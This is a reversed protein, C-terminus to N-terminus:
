VKTINFAKPSIWSFAISFNVDAQNDLLQIDQENKVPIHAENFSIYAQSGDEPIVLRGSAQFLDMPSFEPLKFYPQIGQPDASTGLFYSCNNIIEEPYDHSDCLGICTQLSESFFEKRTSSPSNVFDIFLIICRYFNAIVAHNNTCKTTNLCWSTLLNLISQTDTEKTCILTFWSEMDFDRFAKTEENPQVNQKIYAIAHDIYKPPDCWLALHNKQYQDVLNWICMRRAEYSYRNDSACLEALSVFHAQSEGLLPYLSTKITDVHELSARILSWDRKMRYRRLLSPDHRFSSFLELKKFLEICISRSDELSSPIENTILYYNLMQFNVTTQAGRNLVALVFYNIFKIRISLELIYPLVLHDTTYNLKGYLQGRSKYFNSCARKHLTNVLPLIQASNGPHSCAIHSDFMVNFMMGHLLFYYYYDYPNTCRGLASEMLSNIDRTTQENQEGNTWLFRALGCASETCHLLREMHHLIILANDQSLCSILETFKDENEIRYFIKILIDWVPWSSDIGGPVFTNLFIKTMDAITINTSACIWKIIGNAVHINLVTVTKSDRALYLLNKLYESSVLSSLNDMTFGEILLFQVPTPEEAFRFTFAIGMLIKMQLDDMHAESLKQFIFHEVNVAKQLRYLITYGFLTPHFFYQSELLSVQHDIKALTFDHDPDNEKVVETLYNKLRDVEASTM